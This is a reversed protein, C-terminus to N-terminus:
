AGPLSVASTPVAPLPADGFDDFTMSGSARTNGTVGLIYPQGHAAIYIHSGKNDGLIVAPRGQWKGEGLEKLGAGPALSTLKGVFKNSFTFDTFTSFQPNSVPVKLWRGALLQATSKGDAAGSLREWSAADAKMYLYKATVVLEVTAGKFKLSGGGGSRSMVINLSFAQGAESFNGTVHFDKLKSMAAMSGAFIQAARKSGEPLQAAGPTAPLALAAMLAIAGLQLPRRRM